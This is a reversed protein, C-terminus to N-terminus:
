RHLRRVRRPPERRSGEGSRWGGREAGPERARRSSSADHSWAWCPRPRPGARGSMRFDALRITLGGTSNADAAFRKLLEPDLIEGDPNSFVFRLPISPNVWLTSRGAPAEDPHRWSLTFSEGRRLKTASSRRSMHSCEIPCSPRSATVAMSCSAWLIGRERANSVADVEVRRSTIAVSTGTRRVM